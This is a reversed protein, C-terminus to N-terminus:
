NFLDHVCRFLVFSRANGFFRLSNYKHDTANQFQTNFKVPVNLKTWKRSEFIITAFRLVFSLFCFSACLQSHIFFTSSFESYTRIAEHHHQGCDCKIAVPDGAVAITVAIPFFRALLEHTSYSATIRQCFFAGCVRLPLPLWVKVLLRRISRILSSAM